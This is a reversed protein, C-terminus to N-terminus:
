SRSQFYFSSGVTVMGGFDLLFSNTEFGDVFLYAPDPGVLYDCYSSTGALVLLAMSSLHLSLHM